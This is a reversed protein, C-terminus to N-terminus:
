FKSCGENEVIDDMSMDVEDCMKRSNNDEMCVLITLSFLSILKLQSGFLFSWFIESIFLELTYIITISCGNQFLILKRSFATQFSFIINVSCRDQLVFNIELIPKRFVM